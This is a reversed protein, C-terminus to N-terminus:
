GAILAFMLPIPAVALAAIAAFAWFGYAGSLAAIFAIGGGGGILSNGPLNIIAALALYRNRLLTQSLRGSSRRLLLDLREKRPAANIEEILDGARNLHLWRFAGIVLEPPMMRAGIFAIILALVMGAYVLPAIPKGFVLLLAFGIEAGPVFPIAATLVYLLMAIMIMRHIMPENAPRMEPIAISDILIALLWGGALLLGYVLLARKHKSIVALLSFM